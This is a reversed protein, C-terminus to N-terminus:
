HLFDSGIGLNSWIWDIDTHIPVVGWGTVTVVLIIGNKTPFGQLGENRVTVPHPTSRFYTFINMKNKKDAFVGQLRSRFSSITHWRLVIWFKIQFWSFHLPYTSLPWFDVSCFSLYFSVVFDPQHPWIQDIWFWPCSKVWGSFFVHGLNGLNRWGCRSDVQPDWGFSAEGESGRTHISWLMSCGPHASEGIAGWRQGPGARRFDKVVSARGGSLLRLLLQQRIHM